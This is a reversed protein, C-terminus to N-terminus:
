KSQGQKSGRAIVDELRSFGTDLRTKVTTLGTKVERIDEKLAQIREDRLQLALMAEPRSYEGTEVATLRNNTTEVFALFQAKFSAGWAVLAASQVLIALILSIPVSKSLHWPEKNQRDVVVEVNDSSRRRPNKTTETM